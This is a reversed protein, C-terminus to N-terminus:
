NNAPAPAPTHTGLEAGFAGVVGKMDGQHGDMVSDADVSFSRFTGAVGSPAEVPDQRDGGGYATHTWTGTWPIGDASGSTTGAATANIDMAGLTVTWDSNGQPNDPDDGVFSGDTNQFSHISGSVTGLEGDTGFDATLAATATFVGSADGDVYIGTAAGAYDATGTLANVGDATQLYTDKGQHFVGIRHIANAADENDPATLWFGFSVWDQDTLMVMADADPTFQWQTGVGLTYDEDGSTRSMACTDTGCTYTGEAGFYTGRVQEGASLVETRTGADTADANVRTLEGGPAAETATVGFQVSDDTTDPDTIVDANFTFLTREDDDAILAALSADFAMAHLGGMYNSYMLAFTEYGGDASGPASDGWDRHLAVHWWPDGLGLAGADESSLADTAGEGSHILSVMSEDEDDATTAADDVQNPNFRGTLMLPTEDVGDLGTHSAGLVSNDDNATDPTTSIRERIVETSWGNMDAQMLPDIFSATVEGGTSTASVGNVNGDADRTVTIHVTCSESDEDTECVFRVGGPAWEYNDAATIPHEKTTMEDPIAGTLAAHFGPTQPIAAVAVHAPPPDVSPAPAPAPDDGGLGSSSSSGGGGCGALALSLALAGASLAWLKTRSTM